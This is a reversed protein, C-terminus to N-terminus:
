IAFITYSIFVCFLVGFVLHLLYFSGTEEEYHHETVNQAILQLVTDSRIGDANMVICVEITVLLPYLVM